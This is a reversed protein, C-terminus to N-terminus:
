LPRRLTDNTGLQELVYAIFTKVAHATYNRQPLLTYFLRDVEESDLSYFRLNQSPAKQIIRDCVFTAGIGNDAFRYATVLQSLSLKVKPTFGAEECMLVSREYLNNGKQLLIFELERFQELPIKCQTLSLHRGAQIDEASM